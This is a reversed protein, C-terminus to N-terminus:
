EEDSRHTKPSASHRAEARAKTGATVSAIPALEREIARRAIVTPCVREAKGGAVRV